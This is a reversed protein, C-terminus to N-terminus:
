SLFKKLRKLVCNSDSTKQNGNGKSNETKTGHTKPFTNKIVQGNGGNVWVFYTEGDCQYHLIWVALMYSNLSIEKKKSSFEYLTDDPVNTKANDRAKRIFEKTEELKLVERNDIDMNFVTVDKDIIDINFCVAEGLKNKRLILRNESNASIYSKYKSNKSYSTKYAVTIGWLPLFHKSVMSLSANFFDEPRGFDSAMKSAVRMKITEISTNFPVIYDVWFDQTISSKDSTYTGGCYPCVLGKVHEIDMTAGCSPCKIQRAAM